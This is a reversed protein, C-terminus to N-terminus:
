APNMNLPMVVTIVPIPGASTVFVPRQPEGWGLTLDGTPHAAIADRFYDLFLAFTAEYRSPVDLEVNERGSGVSASDTSLTLQDGAISVILPRKDSVAALRTLARMVKAGPIQTQFPPRDDLASNVPPFPQEVQRAIVTTTDNSATFVRGRKDLAVQTALTEAVREIDSLALLGTYTGFSVGPLSARAVRKGDTAHLRVEDPTSVIQVVNVVSACAKVAKVATAIQTLDADFVQASPVSTNAFTAEMLRFTYPAAGAAQVTLEPASSATFAVPTTPALTALFAILPKPLLVRDGAATDTVPVKVTITTTGEDSGTVTLEGDRVRLRVGAYVAQTPLKPVVKSVRDLADRLDAARTTFKM